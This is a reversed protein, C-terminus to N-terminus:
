RGSARVGESKLHEHLIRAVEAIAEPHRHAGHNSPVILESRAGDLHSSWYPVVGDSSDPTDGKGRDGMISHYPVRTSTPLESALKVFENKPSLTDISNPILKLKLSDTGVFPVQALDRGLEVLWTPTRVLKGVLRGAFSTALKSGRHPAAIFVARSVDAREKYVLMEKMIGSEDEFLGPLSMLPSPFFEKYLREGSETLLFRCIVGGMSHGVLVIKKHDPFVEKLRDLDRRFLMASYPYPYGSPYSYVWVQFHKSIEPDSRLGMIMPMWTVPTDMLGHVFVVPIRGPDYPRLRSLRATEAYKDPAFLRKLRIKEPREDSILLALSASYDAALPQRRGAIVVDSVELPDHFLVECRGGSVQATATLGYYTKKGMGFRKEYDKVNEKNAVVLPAGLGERTLREKFYKGGLKLESCATFEYLLPDQGAKVHKKKWLELGGPLALPKSWLDLEARRVVCIIESVAFNYDERAKVSKPNAGLEAQASEVVRVLNALAQLPERKQLELAAVLLADRDSHKANRRVETGVKLDHTRVTAIPACSSLVFCLITLCLPTRTFRM